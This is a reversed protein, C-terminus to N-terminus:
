NTLAVHEAYTRTLCREIREVDDDTIDEASIPTRERVAEAVDPECILCRVPVGSNIVNHIPCREM